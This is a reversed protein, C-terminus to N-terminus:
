YNLSFAINRNSKGDFDFVAQAYKPPGGIGQADNSFGFGETPIGYSNKDLKGNNNEDHYSAVAYKGAPLNHIVFKVQGMAAKTRQKTKALEPKMFSASSDYIAVFVSGISSHVDRVTITLDAASAPSATLPLLLFAFISIRLHTM